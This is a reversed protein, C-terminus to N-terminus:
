VCYGYSYTFLVLYVFIEFSLIISLIALMEILDPLKLHKCIDSEEIVRAIVALPQM